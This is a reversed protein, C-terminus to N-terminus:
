TQITPDDRSNLENLHSVDNSTELSWSGDIFEFSSYSANLRKFRSGNGPAIGLVFEFFGMLFGGHTVVVVQANAHREAINTLVRVSREYREKASEGDPIVYEFGLRDYDSRERPFQAHMEKHTLGQFIGM